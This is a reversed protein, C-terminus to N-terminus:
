QMYVPNSSKDYETHLWVLFKILVRTSILPLPTQVIELLSLFPVEVHCLFRDVLRCHSCYFRRRKFHEFAVELWVM